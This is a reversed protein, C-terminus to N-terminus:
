QRSESDIVKLSAFSIDDLHKINNKQWKKTKYFNIKRKVFEGVFNKYDFMDKIMQHEDIFNNGDQVFTSIGDSSIGIFDVDELIQINPTMFRAYVNCLLNYDRLGDLTGVSPPNTFEILDLDYDNIFFLRYNIKEINGNTIDFTETTCSNHGFEDLYGGLRRGDLIYSFYFPANSNFNTIQYRKTGDKLKYFCVGDGLTFQLIHGRYEIAVLMTADLSEIPFQYKGKFEYLKYLLDISFERSFREKQKENWNWFFNEENGTLYRGFENELTRIINWAVIKVGFDVKKTFEHSSSCGDCLVLVNFSDNLKKERHNNFKINQHIAYDQCESHSEGILYCSDKQASM